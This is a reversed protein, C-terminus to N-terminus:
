MDLGQSIPSGLMDKGFFVCLTESNVLIWQWIFYPIENDHSDGSKNKPVEWHFAFGRAVVDGLKRNVVLFSSFFQCDVHFEKRFWV